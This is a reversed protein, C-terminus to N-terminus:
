TGNNLVLPENVEKEQHQLVKPLGSDSIFEGILHRSQDNFNIELMDRASQNMFHVQADRDVVILGDRIGNLMLEMNRFKETFNEIFPIIMYLRAQPVSNP